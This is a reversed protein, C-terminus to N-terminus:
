AGDGPPYGSQRVAAIDRNVILNTSVNTPALM